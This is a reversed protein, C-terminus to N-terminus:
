EGVVRSNHLDVEELDLVTDHVELEFFNMFMEFDRNPPLENDDGVWGSLEADFIAQYRESIYASIYAVAQEPEDFQPILFTTCNSRIQNLTLDPMDDSNTQNLWDLFDQTPKLVVVSRDVFYM